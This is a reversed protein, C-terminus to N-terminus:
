GGAPESRVTRWAGIAMLGLTFILIMTALVQVQPPIEVKNANFIQMPFTTTRDGAVFSTIIYDDISLAFSLLAAAAVGPLILPFTVKTFAQWSTSGLDLAADELSWDFGRMRAQVTLAVFSVCFLVHAIVITTFGFGVNRAFFLTFLSAGMVIEPTTLPLVVLINIAGKGRFNYKSQAFAMLGGVITAILVSVFAVQLSTILADRYAPKDFPHAWNDLTFENWSTNFKGVPDNFSFIVIVVIPAFLWAYVLLAWIGLIRQPFPRRVKPARKSDPILESLSAPGTTATM